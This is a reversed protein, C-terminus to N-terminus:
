RFYVFQAQTVSRHRFISFFFFRVDSLMEVVPLLGSSCAHSLSTQFYFSVNPYKLFMNKVTLLGCKYTHILGMDNPIDKSVNHVVYERIYQVAFSVCIKCM